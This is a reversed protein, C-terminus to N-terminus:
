QPLNLGDCKEKHIMQGETLMLFVINYITPTTTTAAKRYDIFSTCFVFVKFQNVATALGFSKAYMKVLEIICNTDYRRSVSVFLWIMCM